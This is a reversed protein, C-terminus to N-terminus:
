EKAKERARVEIVVSDVEFSLELPKPWVTQKYVRAFHLATERAMSTRVTNPTDLDEGVIYKGQKETMQIAEKRKGNGM